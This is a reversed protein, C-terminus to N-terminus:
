PSHSTLHRGGYLLPHNNIKNIMYIIRKAGRISNGNNMCKDTFYNFDIRKVAEKFETNIQAENEVNTAIRHAETVNISEIDQQLINQLGRILEQQAATLTGGRMRRRSRGRHRVQKRRKSRYRRHTRAAM